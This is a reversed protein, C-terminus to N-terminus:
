NKDEKRLEKRIDNILCKSLYYLGTYQDSNIQDDNRADIIKQQLQQAKVFNRESCWECFLCYLDDLLFDFETSPGKFITDDGM